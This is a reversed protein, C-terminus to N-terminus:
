GFIKKLIEKELDEKNFELLNSFENNFVVKGDKISCGSEVVDDSVKYGFIEDGLINKMKRSLIIEANESINLNKLTNEIFDLYSDKDINKLRELAKELVRDVLEEKAQLIMDRSKLNANSLIREKLSIAEEKSKQEIVDVERQIKKNEKGAFELNEAKAKTLIRNAEKQAQQLIEAVLNDLNSM